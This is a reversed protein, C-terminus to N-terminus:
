NPSLLLSTPAWRESEFAGMASWPELCSCPCQEVGHIFSFLSSALTTNIWSPELLSATHRSCGMRNEKATEAGSWWCASHPAAASAGDPACCPKPSLDAGGGTPFVEAMSPGAAWCKLLSKANCHVVRRFTSTQGAHILQCSNVAPRWPQVSDAIYRCWPVSPVCFISCTKHRM